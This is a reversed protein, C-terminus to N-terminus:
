QPHDGPKEWSLAPPRLFERLEPDERGFPPREIKSPPPPSTPEIAETTEAPETTAPCKGNGVEARCVMVCYRTGYCIVEKAPAGCRACSAPPEASDSM